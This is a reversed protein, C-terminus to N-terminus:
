LQIQIGRTFEIGQMLKKGELQLELNELAGNGCGVILGEKGYSILQGPTGHKDNILYTKKIKLRKM